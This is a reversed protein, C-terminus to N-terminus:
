SGASKSKAPAKAKVAKVPQGSFKISGKDTEPKFEHLELVIDKNIWYPESTPEHSGEVGLKLNQIELFGMGDVATLRFVYPTTSDFKPAAGDAFKIVVSKHILNFLSM